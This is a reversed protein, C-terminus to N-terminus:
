VHARGIEEDQSSHQDQDENIAADGAPQDQGQTPSGSIRGQTAPFEPAAPGSIGTIPGPFEPGQQVEQEVQPDQTQGQNPANNAGAAPAQQDQSSSPEVQTSCLEERDAVLHGEIPRFFGVGMRGIAEQPIEVDESSVNPQAVQSDDNEDFKVSCSEVVKGLSKDYVRYTHSEAGYGVFIGELAKAQFKSLRVGKILYFCKCGFVRFYSVNPKDGTLIEYPTKNLGKRFYLRNSSHCATSVAGAWLFQPSNFEALM